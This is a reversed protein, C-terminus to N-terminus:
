KFTCMGVCVWMAILRSRWPQPMEDALWRKFDGLFIFSIRRFDEQDRFIFAVSINRSWKNEFVWSICILTHPSPLSQTFSYFDCVVRWSLETTNGKTKTNKILCNKRSTVVNNSFVSFLFPIKLWLTFHEKCYWAIKSNKIEFVNRSIFIDRVTELLEM